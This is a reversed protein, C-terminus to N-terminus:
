ITRDYVTVQTIVDRLRDGAVTYELIDDATDGWLETSAPDDICVESICMQIPSDPTRRLKPWIGFLRGKWEFEVEGGHTVCWKFDSITEFRNEEIMRRREEESPKKYESM